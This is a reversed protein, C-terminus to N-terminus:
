KSLYKIQTLSKLDNMLTAGIGDLLNLNLQHDQLLTVVCYRLLRFDKTSAGLMVGLLLHCEETTLISALDIDARQNLFSFLKPAIERFYNREFLAKLIFSFENDELNRIKDTKKLM